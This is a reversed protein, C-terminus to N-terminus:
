HIVKLTDNGEFITGDNLNGSISINHVGPSLFEILSRRNFKVMLDPIGNANYDDIKTPSPEAYLPEDLKIEDVATIVISNLDIEGPDYSEPLEIYATVWKGKSKRNLTEPKMDIVAQIEKDFYYLEGSGEGKLGDFTLQIKNSGDSNMIWLDGERNYVIKQADPWSWKPDLFFEKTPYEFTFQQKELTVPNVIWIDRYTSQDVYVVLNQHPSWDARQANAIQTKGTGDINMIYLKGWHIFLIKKGDGSFSCFDVKSHADYIPELGTGDVNVWYICNNNSGFNVTFGLKKGDPTWEQGACNAGSISVVKQINTGDANMVFIEYFYGSERNSGFAIKSGDPSWEPNRDAGPGYTLQLCDTGDENMVWIKYGTGKTSYVIKGSKQASLSDNVGAIFFVISFVCLIFCIKKFSM